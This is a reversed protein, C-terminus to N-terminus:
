LFRLPHQEQGGVAFICALLHNFDDPPIQEAFDSPMPSLQSERRTEVQQRAIQIEEGLEDVIVLVPGQEKVVVGTITGGDKLKIMQSRFASEVNRNPDLVDEILRELGRSAAGDLQPGVTKGKGGVQHCKICYKEFVAAGRAAVTQNAHYSSRRQDLLGDLSVEEQPLDRTLRAARERIDPPLSKLRIQIGSRLLVQRSAKGREIADLLARASDEKQV